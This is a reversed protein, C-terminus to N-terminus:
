YVAFGTIETVEVRFRASVAWQGGDLYYRPFEALAIIGQATKPRNRESGRLM